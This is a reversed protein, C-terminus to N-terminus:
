GKQRSSARHPVAQNFWYVRVHTNTPLQSNGPFDLAVKARVPCPGSLADCDPDIEVIAERAKVRLGFLRFNSVSLPLLGAVVLVTALVFAPLQRGTHDRFGDISAEEAFIGPALARLAFRPLLIAVGSLISNKLSAVLTLWPHSESMSTAGDLILFVGVGVACSRYIGMWGDHGTSRRSVRPM